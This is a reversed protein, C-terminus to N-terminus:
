PPSFVNRAFIRLPGSRYDPPRLSTISRIRDFITANTEDACWEKPFQISTVNTAREDGYFMIVSRSLTCLTIYM